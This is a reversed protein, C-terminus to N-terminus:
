VCQSNHERVKLWGKTLNARIQLHLFHVYCHEQPVPIVFFINLYPTKIKLIIIKNGKKSASHSWNIESKIEHDPKLVSGCSKESTAPKLLILHLNSSHFDQRKPSFGTSRELGQLDKLQWCFRWKGTRELQPPIVPLWCWGAM